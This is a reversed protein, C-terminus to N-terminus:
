HMVNRSMEVVSSCRKLNNYCVLMSNVKIISVFVHVPVRKEILIANLNFGNPKFQGNITVEFQTWLHGKRTSLFISQHIEM